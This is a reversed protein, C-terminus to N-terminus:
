FTKVNGYISLVVFSLKCCRLGERTVYRRLKYFPMIDQRHDNWVVLEGVLVCERELGCDTTGVGLCKKIAHIVPQRDM